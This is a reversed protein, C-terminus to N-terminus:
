NPSRSLAGYDQHIDFSRKQQNHDFFWLEGEGEWRALCMLKPDNVSVEYQLRVDAQVRFTM